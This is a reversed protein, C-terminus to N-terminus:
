SDYLFSGRKRTYFFVFRAAQIFKKIKRYLIFRAYRPPHLLRLLTLLLRFLLFFRVSALFVGRVIWM